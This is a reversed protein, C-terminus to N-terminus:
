RRECYSWTFRNNYLNMGVSAFLSKNRQVRPKFFAIRDGPREIVEKSFCTAILSPRGGSIGEAILKDENAGM